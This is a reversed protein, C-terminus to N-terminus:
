LHCYWYSRKWIPGTKVYTGVRSRLLYQRKASEYEVKSAPRCGQWPPKEANAASSSLIIAVVAAAAARARPWVTGAQDFRNM